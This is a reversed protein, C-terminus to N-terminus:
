LALRAGEFALALALFGFLEQALGLLKQCDGAVGFGRSAWFVGGFSFAGAVTVRLGLFEARLELFTAGAAFVIFGRFNLPLDGLQFPVLGIGPAIGFPSVAVAPRLWESGLEVTAALLRRWPGLESAPELVQAHGDFVQVGGAKMFGGFVEFAVGLLHLLPKCGFSIELARKSSSGGTRRLRRLALWNARWSGGAPRFHSRRGFLLSEFSSVTGTSRFGRLAQGLQLAFHLFQALDDAPEFLPEVFEGLIAM